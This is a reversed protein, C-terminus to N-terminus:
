MNRVDGINPPRGHVQPQVKVMSRKHGRMTGPIFNERKKKLEATKVVGFGASATLGTFSKCMVM